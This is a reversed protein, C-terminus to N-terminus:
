KVDRLKGKDRLLCMIGNLKRTNVLYVAEPDMQGWRTRCHGTFTSYVASKCPMNQHKVLYFLFSTYLNLITTKNQFLTRSTQKKAFGYM